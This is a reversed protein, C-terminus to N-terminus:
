CFHAGPANGPPLPPRHTRSVVKGSDQTTTLFDPFRLKRSGEPGSWARLPVTKSKLYMLRTNQVYTLRDNTSLSSALNLTNLFPTTLLINPALLSSTVSSHLFSCLTSSLSRYEEGFITHYFRSSHFPRAMHCTHPLLCAYVPNQHTFRLSLSWKSSGTTSPLTFILHIKLFHSKPNHVPNIQSM